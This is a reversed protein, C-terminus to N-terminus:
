SDTGSRRIGVRNDFKRVGNRPSTSSQNPDAGRGKGHGEHAGPRTDIKEESSAASDAKAGTSSLTGAAGGDIKGSLDGKGGVKTDTKTDTTGGNVADSTDGSAGHPQGGAHEPARAGSQNQALVSEEALSTNMMAAGFLLAHTAVLGAVLSMRHSM